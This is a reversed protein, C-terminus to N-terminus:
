LKGKMGNPLIFSVNIILIYETTIAQSQIYLIMKHLNIVSQEESNKTITTLMTQDKM